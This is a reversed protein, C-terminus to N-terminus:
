EPFYAEEVADLKALAANFFARLTVLQDPVVATVRARSEVSSIAQATAQRLALGKVLAGPSPLDTAKM